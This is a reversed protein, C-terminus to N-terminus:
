WGMGPDAGAVWGVEKGGKRGETGKLKQRYLLYSKYLDTNTGKICELLTTPLQEPNNVSVFM